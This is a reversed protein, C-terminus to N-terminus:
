VQKSKQPLNRLPFPLSFSSRFSSLFRLVQDSVPFLSSPSISPLSVFSLILALFLSSSQPLSPSLHSVYTYKVRELKRAAKKEQEEKRKAGELAWLNLLKQATPDVEKERENRFDRKMKALRLKKQLKTLKEKQAKSLTGELVRTYTGGIYDAKLVLLEDDDKKEDNVALSFQGEYSQNEFEKLFVVEKRTSVPPKPDGAGRHLTAGLELSKFSKSTM